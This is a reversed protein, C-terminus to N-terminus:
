LGRGIVTQGVRVYRVPGGRARWRKWDLFTLTM